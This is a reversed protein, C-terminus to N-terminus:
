NKAAAWIGDIGDGNADGSTADGTYRYLPMGNLVVQVTGDSWTITGLTGKLGSPAAPTGTTTRLPPWISACAGTCASATSTDNRNTYLTMGNGAALVTGLKASAVLQLPGAPGSKPEPTSYGYSDGYRGSMDSTAAPVPPSYPTNAASAKAVPTQTPAAPGSGAGGCAAILVASAVAIAVVNM